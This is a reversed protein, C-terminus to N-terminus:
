DLEMMAFRTSADDEGAIVQDFSSFQVEFGLEVGVGAAADLCASCKVSTQGPWFVTWRAYSLCGHSGCLQGTIRLTDAFAEVFLHWPLSQRGNILM